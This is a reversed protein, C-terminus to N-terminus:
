FFLSHVYMANTFCGDHTAFGMHTHLVPQRTETGIYEEQFWTHKRFNLNHQIEGKNLARWHNGDDKAGHLSARVPLLLAEPALSKQIRARVRAFGMTSLM